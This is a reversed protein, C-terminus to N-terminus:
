DFQLLSKETKPFIMRLHSVRAICGELVASVVDIVEKESTSCNAMVADQQAPQMIVDGQSADARTSEKLPDIDSYPWGGRLGM